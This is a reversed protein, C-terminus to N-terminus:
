LTLIVLPEWNGILLTGITKTEGSLTYGLVEGTSSDYAFYWQLSSEEQASLPASTTWLWLTLFVIGLWRM